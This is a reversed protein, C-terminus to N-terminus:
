LKIPMIIYINNINKKDKILVSHYSDTFLIQITDNEIVNLVDLLYNINFGIEISKGQYLIKLKDKAIEQELNKAFLSLSNNSIYMRVSKYKQDSLISIRNLSAKILDSEVTLINKFDASIISNYDPYNGEILKSTLSYNATEIKFHNESCFINIESKEKHILRIIELVTKRPIIIKKKNKENNKIFISSVAMRHGDTAISRIYNNGIEFLLGNLFYRVDKKAMSFYTKKFLFLILHSSIKLIQITKINKMNPFEKIPTTCLKFSTQNSIIIGQNKNKDLIFIIESKETLNKCIDLLKKASLTTSGDKGSLVVIKTAIEIEFDTATIFLINNKLQIFVNMAIAITNRKSIVGIITQLGKLFSDRQIKFEM